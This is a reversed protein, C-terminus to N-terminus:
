SDSQSSVAQSVNGPTDPRHLRIRPFAPGGARWGKVPGEFIGVLRASESGWSIHTGALSVVRGLVFQRQQPPLLAKTTLVTSQILM